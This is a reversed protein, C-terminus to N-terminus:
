NELSLKGLLIHQPIAHENHISHIIYEHIKVKISCVDLFTFIGIM